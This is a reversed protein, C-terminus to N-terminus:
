GILRFLMIKKIFLYISPGYTVVNLKARRGKCGGVRTSKERRGKHGGVTGGKHGREM